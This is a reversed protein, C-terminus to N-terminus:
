RYEERLISYVRVDVVGKNTRESRRLTGEYTMGCKEMVRGSAPNRPDHKAEIRCAGVTDFFFGMVAHLAETTYGKNQFARGICYGVEITDTDDCVNAASITGVPEGTEKPVIAWHYWRMDRYKEEWFRALSQTESLASHNKWRLFETVMPDSTWNRFAAESDAYEFRRLVLRKTELKVTGLHKM